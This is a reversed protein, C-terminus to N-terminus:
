QKYSKMLQNDHLIDIMFIIFFSVAYLNCRSLMAIWRETVVGLDTM